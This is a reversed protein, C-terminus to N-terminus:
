IQMLGGKQAPKKKQCSLRVNLSGFAGALHQPEKRDRTQFNGGHVFLFGISLMMLSAIMDPLLNGENM